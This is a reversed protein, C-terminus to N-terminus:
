VKDIGKKVMEQARKSTKAMDVFALAISAFILGFILIASLDSSIASYFSAWGAELVYWAVHLAILAVAVIDLAYMLHGYVSRKVDFVVCKARCDECSGRAYWNWPRLERCAPCYCYRM